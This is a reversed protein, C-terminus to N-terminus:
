YHEILWFFIFNRLIYVRLNLKLIFNVFIKIIFLKFNLWKFKYSYFYIKPAFGGDVPHFISLLKLPAVIFKDSLKSEYKNVGSKVSFITIKWEIYTKGLLSPNFPSYKISIVGEMVKM